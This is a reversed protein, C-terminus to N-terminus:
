RPASINGLVDLVEHEVDHAGAAEFVRYAPHARAESLAREHAQRDEWVAIIEVRGPVHAFWCDVLGAPHDLVVMNSWEGLLDYYDSGEVEARSISLIM